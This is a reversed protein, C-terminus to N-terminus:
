SSARSRGQSVKRKNKPALCCVNAPSQQLKAYEAKTQKLIPIDPDADKWLTLFDQYAAKAKATDGQMAYARGIQLHALAGIPSNVVIGRHDLIKQFERAAEPGRHAMLYARGRLYAPLLQPAVWSLELAATPALEDVAQAAKNQNLKIVSRIEPLWLNKIVTDVPHGAALGDALMGAQASDGVLALTLAGSWSASWGNAAHGSAGASQSLAATAKQRATAANGFLVERLAANATLFAVREKAGARLAIDDARRSLERAKMLHGFYAETDTAMDEFNSQSQAIKTMMEADGEVFALGYRFGDLGSGLNRGQAQQYIAYADALRNLAMYDQMLGAYPLYQSPDLHNAEEFEETSEEWRGLTAYEFGLIRHPVFDRPYTQKWLQCSRIAQEIDGTAFQHYVATLDLKERDSARNRLTYARRIAEEALIAEGRVQHARGLAAYASAFEPDLEIAEQLIPIASAPDGKAYQALGLSYAKLADLSSTTAQALPTDFKTISTLSEGLKGRLATSAKALATLVQERSEAAALEEAMTDETVANVAKLTIVYRSGLAAISGEVMGKAGNRLCIERGIETTIPIDPAKAMLKLTERVKGDSLVNLYPSQGLSVELATKLTGDFVTDGTKNTFDALVITDKDTLKPARHLYVYVGSVFAAAVLAALIVAKQRMGRRAGVVVAADTTATLRAPETDRRLRQLDTRIDAASQYRLRRDKELAKYVIRDLEPPLSSNAQTLRTPARNLIADHIVAASNGSFAMRGTAMEYLVAGFSFLDTRADLEEGRAQEPSMYALTGVAAGPMTLLVDTTATPSAVFEEGEVAAALKALGFDLLKAHGRKTVFINAPKIDRHIVREAHAASLADAVEIGLELTNDLAMPKGSIRRRLTQGELFEMAIFPQGDQEGIDHITCINPHNLASAAEAERRFRELAQRDHAMEPPLFKLAVFRHLRTDEAKYVVGMGGGGLKEVIRYHSVTRGILAGPDAM